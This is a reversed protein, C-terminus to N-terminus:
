QALSNIYTNIEDIYSQKRAEGTAYGPTVIFAAGRIQALMDRATELAGADLMMKVNILMSLQQLNQDTSITIQKNEALFRNFLKQGMQRDKYVRKTAENMVIEPIASVDLDLAVAMKQIAETDGQIVGYKHSPYATMTDNDNKIVTVVAKSLLDYVVRM